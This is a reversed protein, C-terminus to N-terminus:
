RYSAWASLIDYFSARTVINIAPNVVTFFTEIARWEREGPSPYLPQRSAALAGASATPSGM